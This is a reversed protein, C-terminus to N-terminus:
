YLFNILILRELNLEWLHNQVDHPKESERIWIEGLEPM